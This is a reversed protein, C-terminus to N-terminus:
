GLPGGAGPPPDRVAQDAFEEFTRDMERAMTEFPEPLRTFRTALMAQEEQELWWRHFVFGTLGSLREARPVPETGSRRLPGPRAM